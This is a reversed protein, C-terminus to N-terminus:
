SKCKLHAHESAFKNLANCADNWIVDNNYLVSKLYASTMKQTIALREPDEDDTEKADYGAIGGLGHKGGQLTLLYHSGPSLYFPDTHWDAGRTTFHSSVDQDGYVVLTRTTMFSYDPNLEPYKERVVSHLDKGGKGVAALLVGVKIREDLTNKGTKASQKSPILQMGLLMAATISGASHGVVAIRQKDLRGALYPTNNEILTLNDLITKMERLRENLFLPADPHTDGLGGVKSNAHTPQIVAFGQEAYYNALPAYGDKSPLYLSPGHGHSLLIIPINDGSAPLTIRLELPSNRKGIPVLIPSISLTLQRDSEPILTSVSILKNLQFDV